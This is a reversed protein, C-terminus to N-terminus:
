TFQRLISQDKIKLDAALLFAKSLILSLTHDGEFPLTLSHPSAKTAAGQVICLYRNGPEM